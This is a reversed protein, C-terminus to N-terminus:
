MFKLYIYIYVSKHQLKKEFKIGLISSWAQFIINVGWKLRIYYWLIWWCKFSISPKCWIILFMIIIPFLATRASVVMAVVIV